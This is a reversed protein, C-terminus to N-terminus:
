CTATGTAALPCRGGQLAGVCTGPLGPTRHRTCAEPDRPPLWLFSAKPTCKATTESGTASDRTAGAQGVGGVCRTRPGAGVPVCPGQAEAVLVRASAFGPCGQAARVQLRAPM